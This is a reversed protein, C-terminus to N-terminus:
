KRSGKGEGQGRSGVERRELDEVDAACDELVVALEAWQACYERDWVITSANAM